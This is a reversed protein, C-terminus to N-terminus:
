NPSPYGTGKLKKETWQQFAKDQEPTLIKKWAGSEGQRMFTLGTRGEKQEIQRIDEDFNVSKNNKMSAFSLHHLMTTEQENNYSVGLFDATRKMVPLLDKKMDEFTNFLVNPEDRLKWYSLVHEWFPSFVVKDEVFAKLFLDQSGTYNNWLRFHHFYSIAADKPNRAVYIIKPKKTWIQKPLLNVPLHTKIFRPSELNNVHEILDPIEQSNAGWLPKYRVM